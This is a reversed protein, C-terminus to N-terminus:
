ALNLLMLRDAGEAVKCPLVDPEVERYLKAM